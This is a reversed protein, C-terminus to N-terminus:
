GFAAVVRAVAARLAPEPDALCEELSAVDTLATVGAVGDPLDSGAIESSGCLVRVPVGAARARDIVVGPGKGQLTQSDFRGEGTIVLDAATLREDFGALDLVLEAGSRVEAACGVMAGFGAGGAAGAGAHEAVSEAEGGLVEAFRALAADLRAVEAEGAGKQPGYVTAAGSDGTLPNTVDSALILRAGGLRDAVPSLDASALEALAAGGPGIPEGSADLLRAGLAALMGAGGDTCASGGLGLVIEQAGAELAAAIVEGTGRSTARLSTEPTPDLLALGSAEALEVVARVPGRQPDGLAWRATVRAGLPGTVETTRVSFGADSALVAEVTGDGGDALLLVDPSHGAASLQSSLEAALVASTLTGKFSDCAILIRM